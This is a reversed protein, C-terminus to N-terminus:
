LVEVVLRFGLGELVEVVLRFGLGELVEKAKILRAMEKSSKKSEKPKEMPLMEQIETKKKPNTSILVDDRKWKHANM